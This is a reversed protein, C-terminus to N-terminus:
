KKRGHENTRKEFSFVGLFFPLPRIDVFLISATRHKTRTEVDGFACETQCLCNQNGAVMLRLLGDRTESEKYRVTM